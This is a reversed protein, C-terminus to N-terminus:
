ANPKARLRALLRPWRLVLWVATWINGLVLLPAAWLLGAILSGEVLIMMIALLAFGVYLDTLAAVGWPQDLLALKEYRFDEFNATQGVAFILVLLLLLGLFAAAIRVLTM